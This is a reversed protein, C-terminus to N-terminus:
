KKNLELLKDHIKELAESLLTPTTSGSDAYEKVIEVTMSLLEREDINASM